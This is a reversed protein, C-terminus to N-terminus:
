EVEDPPPPEIPLGADSWEPWGGEYVFVYSYGKDMLKKALEASDECGFGSCYIVLERDKPSLHEASRAFAAEFDKNPLSVAKKIHGEYTYFVEDRADVFIAGAKWKDAAATLDIFRAEALGSVAQLPSQGLRIGQHSFAYNHVLGVAMSIGVLILSRLVTIKWSFM